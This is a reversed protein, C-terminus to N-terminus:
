LKYKAHQTTKSTIKCTIQVAALNVRVERIKRGNCSNRSTKYNLFSPAVNKTVSEKHDSTELIFRNKIPNRVM